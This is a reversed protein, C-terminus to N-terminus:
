GAGCTMQRSLQPRGQFFCSKYVLHRTRIRKCQCHQQTRNTTSYTRLLTLFASGPCQRLVPESGVPLAIALNSPEVVVRNDVVLVPIVEIIGDVGGFYFERM